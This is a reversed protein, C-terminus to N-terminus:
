SLELREGQTDITVTVISQLDELIPTIEYQIVDAILVADQNELAEMLTHLENQLTAINTLYKDWNELKQQFQDLTQVMQVIWQVGEILQGFKEWTEQSPNNYFEDVLLNTEPLAGKIYCETSLLTENILEQKTKTQVEISKITALREVIYEGHNEFVDEGDIILHSLLLDTKSVEDNIKEFMMNIESVENEYTYIEGFLSLKM